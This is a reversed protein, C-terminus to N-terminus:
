LVPLICIIGNKCKAIDFNKFNEYLKVSNTLENVKKKTQNKIKKDYEANENRAQRELEILRKIAAIETENRITIFIWNQNCVGKFEKGLFILDAGPTCHGGCEARCYKLTNWITNQLGENIILKEYRTINELYLKVNWTGKVGGYTDAVLSTKCIAKGKYKSDWANHVGSWGPTMKNECLWAVFDLVTQQKDEDVILPIVDEIKPRLKRQVHLHTLDKQESM